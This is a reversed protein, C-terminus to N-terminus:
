FWEPRNASMMRVSQGMMLNHRSITHTGALLLITGGGNATVFDMAGNITRKATEPSLGDNNDSAFYTRGDVTYSDAPAVFIIQRKSMRPPEKGEGASREVMRKPVLLSGLFMVVWGIFKRRDM